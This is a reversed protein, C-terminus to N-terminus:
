SCTRSRPRSPASTPTRSPAHAAPEPDGRRLGPRDIVAHVAEGFITAGLLVAPACGALARATHPPSRSTTRTPQNVAALQKLKEPTGTALMKSLYLYGVEGCREAEDMYHTTVLLAIGDAALPVPSGVARPPGRSRHRRDLRRARVAARRRPRPELAASSRGGAARALRDRGAADIRDSRDAAHQRTCARRPQMRNRADLEDRRRSPVGDLWHSALTKAPTRRARARRRRRLPEARDGLHGAARLIRSSDDNASATPGRPRAGDHETVPQGSVDDTGSNARGSASQDRIHSTLGDEVGSSCPCACGCCRRRGM